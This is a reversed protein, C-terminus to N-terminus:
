GEFVEDLTPATVGRRAWADLQAHEAANVQAVVAAPVAGFRAALVTLLMNRKGKIEGKIEGQVRGREILVEGATMLEEKIPDPTVAALQTLVVEPPESHIILIYRWVTGLAAAGNPAAYVEGVLDWCHALGRILEAPNRAHRFCYFVLRGLATMARARLADDGEAGLDDLAFRLRPVREGAAALVEPDLDYLEELSRAATWGGEGHHLVVPLIAPIRDAGPHEGIWAEWIRVAYAILRFPMLPHPRSQHEYLLYFLAQREGVTASFLLDTDRDQLADDVFSGPQLELTSWAVRSVFAAPLVGRLAGEAHRPDSFTSKFLADHPQHTM